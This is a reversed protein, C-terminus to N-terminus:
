RAAGAAHLISAIVERNVGPVPMNAALRYLVLLLLTILLKKRIDESKWLYRWASRKM